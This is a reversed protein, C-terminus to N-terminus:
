NQQFHKCHRLDFRQNTKNCSASLQIRSRLQAGSWWTTTDSAILMATSLFSSWTLDVPTNNCPNMLHPKIDSAENLRPYTSIKDNQLRTRYLNLIMVPELKSLSDNGGLDRQVFQAIYFHRLFILNQSILFCPDVSRYNFHCFIRFYITVLM